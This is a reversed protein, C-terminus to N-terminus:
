SEVGLAAALAEAIAEKYISRPAAIAEKYVRKPAAIAEKNVRWPEAIAENYVRKPEAIAEDYVRWAEASLDLTAALWGLDLGLAAARLLNERSLPIEGTGWEKKVIAVQDKCADRERLWRVTITRLQKDQDTM